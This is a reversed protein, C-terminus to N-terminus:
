LVYTRIQCRNLGIKLVFVHRDKCFSTMPSLFRCFRPIAVLVVSQLFKDGTVFEQLLFNDHIVFKQLVINAANAQKQLNKDGMVPKQLSRYTNTSLIPSLRQWILVHTSHIPPPSVAAAAVTTVLSYVTVLVLLLPPASFRYGSVSPSQM